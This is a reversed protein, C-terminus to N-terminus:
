DKGQSLMPLFVRCCTDHFDASTIADEEKVGKYFDTLWQPPATFVEQGQTQQIVSTPINSPNSAIPPHGGSTVWGSDPPLINVILDKSDLNNVKEDVTGPKLLLAEIRGDSHQLILTYKDALKVDPALDTVKNYQAEPRQAIATEALGPLSDSIINPPSTSNNSPPTIFKNRQSEVRNTVVLLFIGVVSVLLISSVILREKRKM